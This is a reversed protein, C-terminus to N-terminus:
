DACTQTIQPGERRIRRPQGARHIRLTHGQGNEYPEVTATVELVPHRVTALGYRRYGPAFLETEVMGTRDAITMFKMPEGTVQHAIRQEVILGCCTVEEGLHGGLERVPCYTSWAIDDHLALPHDSVAFGFLETEAELRERRSPENLTVAPAGKGPPPPLLEGQADGRREGYARHQWQMDWFLDTRRAAFGDFAGARLLAESEEASSGVRRVFDRLSAFPGHERERLMRECTRDSLGKTRVAPVRIRGGRVAFAPGPDNVWPPALAIGLRRCELVYVLPHYFGKGHTLVAAMFEAPYYRKLWAAQYAEVGYATSHAKCFAYGHFGCVFRWVTVIEERSRGRERACDHFARGISRVTDWDDKVLSRRLRDADGPPLGAFAECVQLVQEEYVILGYTGRLCRELSPHPYVVHEMGQHRRTFQQKKQQNAAGPRIVSVVAILTDIDRVGCMRCLSIMAPSEIHHVARSRGGAVLDWVQEDEWPELAELEIRVGRAALADRADRMVALGAQALVDIKVLGIDEVGDMDFQTTPYGKESVFCPVLDQMPVRSMVVGCPHMKPYRPFGDLFRALKLATAYPEEDLPLDGCEVSQRTAGELDRARAFPIRESVRRVQHESVGLVKAVEAFASRARFTSFGGVVAAHERGYKRFIRDVVDDKRDHPFDVDIDPLKKMNMRERNLFRRFYLDFRIPCVDSIGLCYCVLSDAASGRTIWDIGEARCDQLLDWVVLFYEEYGVEAIMGLEEEVQARVRAARPGYRRAVGEHVLRQLFARPTSGDAPTYAPFQLRGFTLEFTCRDAIERSRAVAGPDDRFRRAMDYGSPFHFDGGEKKDRHRQDLLSLTRISQLIDYTRRGKRSGYHVAPAAVTPGSSAGAEANLYFAGPFLDSLASDHGVAVLGSTDEDFTCFSRRDPRQVGPRHPGETESLRPSRLTRRESASGGTTVSLMHCLNRYGRANEVYLLLPKGDVQLEAGLIPRIGAKRAAHTFATAGHLNGTDTLAVAPLEYKAALDVVRQPSLTSDLFSYWSHVHLPTFLSSRHVIFSSHRPRPRPEQSPTMKGALLLDHGRMICYRGRQERLLQVQEALARRHQYQRSPEELPLEWRAFGDYVRSLRLSVMRLSVRRRWAARLLGRLRGYLDTELDTPEALSESRQDEDLDNYRVRVTVTRVMKGDARVKAMLDDAMRRLTAEALAEDTVDEPFTQQAGYSRAPAERPVVPRDDIGQAFRHVDPAAKGLLVALFDVPMGATQGIRTLGAATLRRATVPGVGPLWRNPLPDLFARERGPLVHICAAPKRLKSAVQSILKSTGIGESVSIKLRQQIARRLTEAIEWPRGRAGTLDAYGEDISGIEVKPTFDFVYSFMWRSFQEYKEFDGPLVLLHPCIRRARATPMPTHVGYRRAEYSASAIIGRQEGGVAIAKGRLRPDAAQEVSAFFADADLHVISKNM